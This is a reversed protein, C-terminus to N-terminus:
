LFVYETSSLYSLVATYDTSNLAVAPLPYIFSADGYIGDASITGLAGARFPEKIGIVGDCM